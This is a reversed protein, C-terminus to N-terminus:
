KIEPPMSFCCGCYNQRYIGLERCIEGSRKFGERKKFDSPLWKSGFDAAYREGCDNILMANKHPSVSLSTCFWEYNEGAAKEATKRIREAICRECRAGGEPATELGSCLSFFAPYDPAEFELRFPYRRLKEFEELRKEFEAEPMINPNYYYLTMEFRSSLLDLTASACPACCVHMLLSPRRSGLGELVQFLKDQYNM